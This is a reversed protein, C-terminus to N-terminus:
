GHGETTQDDPNAPRNRVKRLYAVKPRTNYEADLVLHARPDSGAQAVVGAADNLDGWVIAATPCAQACASTVQPTKRVREADKWQRQRQVCFNCKEMVGRHRVTIEPNLLLNLPAHALEAPAADSGETVVNKALRGLPEESRHPGARFSSYQYWNFRRVKYPCNNSCYRTGICRNYIQINIGEDSHVTANAPCVAECPAHDCQQCLMPQHVAEVDLRSEADGLYYRDVRIWHMERNKRVEDRGVVPVNNEASCAVMCAGCGTCADLDIAM